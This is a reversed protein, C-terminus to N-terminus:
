PVRPAEMMPSRARRDLSAGFELAERALRERDELSTMLIRTIRTTLPLGPAEAHDASDIMIGDILGDNHRAISAQTQPVGLEAMIKATPGKVAQGGIL